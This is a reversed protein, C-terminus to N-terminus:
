ARLNQLRYKGLFNECAPVALGFVARIDIGETNHQLLVKFEIMAAVTLM